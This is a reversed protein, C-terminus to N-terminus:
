DQVSRPPDQRLVRGGFLAIAGERERVVWLAGERDIGGGVGEVIAGGLDVRVREGLLLDLDRWRDALETSGSALDIVRTGIADLLRDYIQEFEMDYIPRDAIREISTASAAIAAPANAFDGRVNMGVGILVRDGNATEVREPLIGALKRGEFEVDNPWRIGINKDKVIPSIIEVVAVAVAVAVRPGYEVKLGIATPDFAATFTLGGQDSWWSNGSRGRGATQNRTRVAFPLSECSQEVWERALTSTSGATELEIRRWSIKSPENM